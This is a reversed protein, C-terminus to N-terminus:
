NTSGFGGVREADANDGDVKLYQQFVGQGIRDGKEIVVDQKSFNYFALMIHGDNDPNSYYDSDVVGVSNALVLGKKIPNGSRNYIFLAEDDAMYAKIGTKVLVPKITSQVPKVADSGWMSPITVTEACEFDYGASNATSRCPLNVGCDEFGKCIEFGRNRM